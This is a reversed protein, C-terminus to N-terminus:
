LLVSVRVCLGVGSLVYAGSERPSSSSALVGLLTMVWAPSTQAMAAAFHPRWALPVIVVSFNLPVLTQDWCRPAQGLAWGCAPSINPAPPTEGERQPTRLIM